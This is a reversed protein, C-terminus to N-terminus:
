CFVIFYTYFSQIGIQSILERKNYNKYIYKTIFIGFILLFFTPILIFQDLLNSILFSTLITMILISLYILRSKKKGFVVVLHNKNTKADSIMDPFQNILLINTTLLGIPIGLLICNFLHENPLEGNFIAFGTGLTLLPGFALFISLEGLGKRSVLRLPPSTYFYGLFLGVSSIILINIMNSMTTNFLILLGM